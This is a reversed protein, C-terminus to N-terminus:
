VFCDASSKSSCDTAYFRLAGRFDAPALLGAKGSFGPKKENFCM